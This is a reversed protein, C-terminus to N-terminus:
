NNLLPISKPDPGKKITMLYAYIDAAQQDTLIASEYPPMEQAPTRLQRVFADYPLPEPALKPGTAGAGQGIYGHCQYCGDKEFLAKGTQANGKPPADEAVASGTWGLVAVVLALAITKKKHNM